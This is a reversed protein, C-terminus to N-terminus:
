PPITSMVLNAWRHVRLKFTSNPSPSLLFPVVKFPTDCMVKLPTDCGQSRGKSQAEQVRHCSCSREGFGDMLGKRSEVM